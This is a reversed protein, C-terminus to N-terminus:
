GPVKRGTSWQRRRDPRRDAARRRRTQAAPRHQGAVADITRGPGAARRDSRARTDSAWKGSTEFRGPVSYALGFGPKVAVLKAMGFAFATTRGAFDARGAQFRFAGAADTTAVPKAPKISCVPRRCRPSSSISKPVRYGAQRGSRRGQRCVGAPRRGPRRHVSRSTQRRRAPTPRPSPRRRNPSCRKASTSRASISRKAPSSRWTKSTRRVVVRPSPTIPAPCFPRTSSDGTPM